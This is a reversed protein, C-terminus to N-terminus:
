TTRRSTLTASHACTRWTGPRSTTSRWSSSSTSTSAGGEEGRFRGEFVFRGAERPLVFRVDASGQAGLGVNLGEFDGLDVHTGLNNYHGGRRMRLELHLHESRADDWEYVRVEATWTGEVPDAPAEVPLILYLAAALLGAGILKSPM